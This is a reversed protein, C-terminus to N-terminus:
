HGHKPSAPVTQDAQRLVFRAIEGFPIAVPCVAEAKEWPTPLSLAERAAWAFTPTRSLALPLAQPAVPADPLAAQCLGCAVCASFSPFRSLDEATFRGLRDAGYSAYFRELGRRRPRLKRVWHAAFNLGLLALSLLRRM